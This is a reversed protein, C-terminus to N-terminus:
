GIGPSIYPELLDVIRFPVGTFMTTNSDDAGDYDAVPGARLGAQQMTNYYWHKVLELTAVKIDPPIPNYGATWTVEINRSGPFFPRQVLGPFVRILRGTQYECQWGDVQNSPTQESLTHPGSVGWWEVVSTIELVPYFPLMIYAGNWGSWGDFRRDYEQPAVPRGIYRQVWTCAMDILLDLQPNRTTDAPSLQLWTKVDNDRDLFGGYIASSANVNSM